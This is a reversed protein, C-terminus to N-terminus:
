SKTEVLAKVPRPTERDQQEKSAPLAIRFTAGASSNNEAWIRGGQAEVLSRAISLGLGMGEKKTSFFPEFLRSMRDSPIGSGDDSVSIEAAGSVSRATHVALRRTGPVSAMAEMGNLFLNLLVQQLHVKNGQVLPLDAGLDTEIAVDRRRSEARVLSVVEATAENVDIPQIEIERKSLLTRLRRIVEVARLDDKRIDAVIERVEDLAV